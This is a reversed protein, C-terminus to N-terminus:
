NNKRKGLLADIDDIWCGHSGSAIRPRRVASGPSQDVASPSNRQTGPVPRDAITGTPVDCRNARRFMLWQSCVNLFSCSFCVCHHQSREGSLWSDLLSSFFGEENSSATKAPSQHWSNRSRSNGRHCFEGLWHSIGLSNCQQVWPARDKKFM